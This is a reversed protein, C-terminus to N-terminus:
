GTGLLKCNIYENDISVIKLKSSHMIDVEYFRLEENVNGMYVCKTGAPAYIRLKNKTQIEHGKVLSTSLFGKEFLDCDAMHKANKKMLNYVDDCVGRYLVLDTDTTHLSVMHAIQLDIDEIKDQRYRENISEGAYALCYELTYHNMDIMRQPEPNIHAHAYEIANNEDPALEDWHANIHKFKDKISYFTKTKM